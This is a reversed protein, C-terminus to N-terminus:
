DEFNVKFKKTKGRVTVWVEIPTLYEATRKATVLRSKVGCVKKTKKTGGYPRTKIKVTHAKQGALWKSSVVNIRETSNLGYEDDTMVSTGYVHALTRKGDKITGLKVLDVGLKKSQEKAQNYAKSVPANSSAAEAPTIGTLAIAVTLAAGLLGVIIRRLM